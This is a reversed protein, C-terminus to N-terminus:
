YQVQLGLERLARKLDSDGFGPIWTAVALKIGAEHAAASVNELGRRSPLGNVVILLADPRAAQATRKALRQRLINGTFLTGAFIEVAILRRDFTIIGDFGAGSRRAV